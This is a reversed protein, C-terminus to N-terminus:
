SSPDSAPFVPGERPSLLRVLTGALVPLPGDRAGTVVATGAAVNLNGDSLVVTAKEFRIVFGRFELECALAATQVKVGGSVLSMRVVDPEVAVVGLHTFPELTLVSDGYGLTAARRDLLDGGLGGSSGGSAGGPAM